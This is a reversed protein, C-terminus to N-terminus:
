GFVPIDLVSPLSDRFTEIAENLFDNDDRLKDVSDLKLKVLFKSEDLVTDM